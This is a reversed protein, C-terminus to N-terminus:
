SKRKVTKRGPRARRPKPTTKVPKRPPKTGKVPKRWPGLAARPIRIMRGTGIVGPLMPKDGNGSKLWARITREDVRAYEAAQRITLMDPVPAPADKSAAANGAEPTAGIARRQEATLPTREFLIQKEEETLDRETFDWVVCPVDPGPPNTSWAEHVEPGEREQGPGIAIDTPWPAERSAVPQRFVAARGKVTDLIVGIRHTRWEPRYAQTAATLPEFQEIAPGEYQARYRNLIKSIGKTCFLEEDIDWITLSRCVPERPAATAATEIRRAECNFRQGIAGKRYIAWFDRFLGHEPDEFYRSVAVPGAPARMARLEDPPADPPLMCSRLIWTEGPFILKYRQAHKDGEFTFDSLPLTRAANEDIIKIKHM